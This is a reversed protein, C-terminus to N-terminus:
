ADFIVSEINEGAGGDDDGNDDRDDNPSLLNRVRARANTM